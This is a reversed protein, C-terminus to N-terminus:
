SGTEADPAGSQFQGHRQETQEAEAGTEGRGARLEGFPARRRASVMTEASSPLPAGFTRLLDVCEMLSRRGSEARLAETGRGGM